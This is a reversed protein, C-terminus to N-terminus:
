AKVLQVPAGVGSKKSDRNDGLGVWGRWTFLFVAWPLVSSSDLFPQGLAQSLGRWQWSCGWFEPATLHHSLAWMLLLPDSHGRSSASPSALCTPGELLRLSGGEAVEEGFLDQDERELQLAQLPRGELLGGQRGGAMRLLWLASLDWWLSFLILGEGPGGLGPM